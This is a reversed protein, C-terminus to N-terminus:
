RPRPAAKKEPTRPRPKASPGGQERGHKGKAEPEGIAPLSGSRSGSGPLSAPRPMLWAGLLLLAIAAALALRSNWRAAPRERRALPRMAPWPKPLEARFFAGLLADLNEGPTEPTQQVVRKM